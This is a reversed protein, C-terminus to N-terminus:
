LDAVVVRGVARRTRVTVAGTSTFKCANSLLNIVVQELRHRDGRIAPLDPELEFVLPLSKEEFLPELTVGVQRVLTDLDVDEDRWEVRGAEMKALDLLDNILATLREGETVIIDLNGRVQTM